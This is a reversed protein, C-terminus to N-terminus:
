QSPPWATASSLKALKDLVRQHYHPELKVKKWGPPLDKEDRESILSFNGGEESFPLQIYYNVIGMDRLVINTLQFAGSTKSWDHYLKFVSRSIPWYYLPWDEKRSSFMERM